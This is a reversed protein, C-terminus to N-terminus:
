RSSPPRRAADISHRLSGQYKAARRQQRERALFEGVRAAEGVRPPQQTRREVAAEVAPRQARAFHQELHAGVRALGLSASLQQQSM